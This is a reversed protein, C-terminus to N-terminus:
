IEGLNKTKNVSKTNADIKLEVKWGYVFLDRCLTKHCVKGVHMKVCKTTGLQLKKTETKTNIFQNM